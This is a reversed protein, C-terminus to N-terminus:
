NFALLLEDFCVISTTYVYNDVAHRSGGYSTFLSIQLNSPRYVIKDFYDTIRVSIQSDSKLPQQDSPKKLRYELTPTTKPTLPPLGASPRSRYETVLLDYQFDYLFM